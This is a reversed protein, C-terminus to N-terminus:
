TCGRKIVNYHLFQECQISDSVIYIRFVPYEQRTSSVAPTATGFTCCDHTVGPKVGFYLRGRHRIPSFLMAVEAPTAITTDTTRDTELPRSTPRPLQRDTDDTAMGRLPQHRRLLLRLRKSQMPPLHHSILPITSSGRSRQTFRNDVTSPDPSHLSQRTRGRQQRTSIDSIQLYVTDGGM